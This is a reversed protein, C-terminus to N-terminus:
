ELFELKMKLGCIVTTKEGGAKPRKRKVIYRGRMEQTFTRQSERMFGNRDCWLCYEEYAQSSRVEGGEDESLCEEVFLKIRDSNHYYEETAERVSEPQVLDKELLKHYGEILWNLIASQTEPEMFKMKLKRDQEGSTFHRDFPIIVIRGSTFLTMDNIAPLFNTNIYLKFQPRFDFSNEHLYRANITDNGTMSKVQAANLLLGKSPESINAFRVGELRALDESPGQSNVNKKAAITEPKVAKGYDDMVSLVSEMLTGKGNRTTSGYLIFLCEYETDGSLGYGLARQLFEAKRADGSMIESIFSIWRDSHANPAYTVHSLKTIMDKPDHDRFTGTKLDYTGNLVNFLYCDNDFLSMSCKSMSEADALITLRKRRGLWSMANSLAFKRTNEDRIKAAEACLMYALDGCLKMVMLSEMDPVWRKGDFVYWKKREPVFCIYGKYADSFLAANGLDTFDYRSNHFVDLNSLMDSKKFDVEPVTINYKPDYFEHCSSVAKRLTINGYTSGSQTRDWKGRMLGSQRFLRDMQDTDGGCWFGLIMALALDAESHSGYGSIDGKWLRSFKEGNSRAAKAIVNADDLYSGPVKVTTNNVSTRRMYKNMVLAIQSDRIAVDRGNLRNGTLTVFKNTVSAIYVELGLKQNNIYYNKKDYLFNEVRFIIHVGTGSPSVEAYSDMTNIIDRALDSVVGDYICHDIDIAGFGDFIGLGIGDYGKVSKVSDFSSFHSNKASSAKRGSVQYPVKTKKGNREEYKWLCFLGDHKLNEPIM